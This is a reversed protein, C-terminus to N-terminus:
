SCRRVKLGWLEYRIDWDGRVLREEVYEIVHVHVSPALEVHVFLEVIGNNGIM